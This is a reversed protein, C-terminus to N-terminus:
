TNSITQIKINCRLYDVYKQKKRTNTLRERYAKQYNCHRLRKRQRTYIDSEKKRKAIAMTQTKIQQKISTAKITMIRSTSDIDSLKIFNHCVLTAKSPATRPRSSYWVSDELVQKHLRPELRPKETGITFRIRGGGQGQHTPRWM